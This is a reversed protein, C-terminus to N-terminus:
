VEKSKKQKNVIKMNEPRISIIQRNTLKVPWRHKKKSFSGCIEGIQKNLNIQKKLNFISIHEGQFFQNELSIDKSKRIFNKIKKIQNNQNNLNYQNRNKAIQFWSSSSDIEKLLFNLRKFINGDDFYRAIFADGWVPGVHNSCVSQVIGEARENPHYGNTLGDDDVYLTINEPYIENMSGQLLPIQGVMQFKNIDINNFFNESINKIGTRKLQKKFNIKRNKKIQNNKQIKSYHSKLSEMFCSIISNENSDDYVLYKEQILDSLSEPIYIYTFKAM